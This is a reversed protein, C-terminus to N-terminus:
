VFLCTFDSRHRHKDVLVRAYPKSKCKRSSKYSQNELNLVFTSNETKEKKLKKIKSENKERGPEWHAAPGKIACQSYQLLLLLATTAGDAERSSSNMVLGGPHEAGDM